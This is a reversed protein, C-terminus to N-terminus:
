VLVSSSTESNLRAESPLHAALRACGLTTTTAPACHRIDNMSRMSPCPHVLGWRLKEKTGLGQHLSCSTEQVRAPLSPKTMGQLLPAPSCLTVWPTQHALPVLKRFLTQCQLDM